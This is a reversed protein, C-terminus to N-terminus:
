KNNHSIIKKLKNTEITISLSTLGEASATLTINGPKGNSQIIALALGNWNKALDGKPVNRQKRIYVAILQIRM